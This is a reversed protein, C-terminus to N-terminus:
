VRECVKSIRRTKRDTRGYPFVRSGSSPNKHFKFEPYQKFDTSLIWTKNFNSVFLRFNVNVEIYM